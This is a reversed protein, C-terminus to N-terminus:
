HDHWSQICPMILSENVIRYETVQTQISQGKSIHSHRVLWCAEYNTSDLHNGTWDFWVCKYICGIPLHEQIEQQIWKCETLSKPKDSAAPSLQKSFLNWMSVFLCSESGRYSFKTRIKQLRWAKVNLRQLPKLQGVDKDKIKKLGWKNCKRLPQSLISQLELKKLQKLIMQPLNWAILIKQSISTVIGIM